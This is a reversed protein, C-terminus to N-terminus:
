AVKAEMAFFFNLTIPFLAQDRSGDGGERGVM